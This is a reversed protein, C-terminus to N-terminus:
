QKGLFTDEFSRDTIIKGAHKKAKDTLFVAGIKEARLILKLQKVSLDELHDELTAGQPIYKLIEDKLMTKYLEFAMMICVIIMTAPWLTFCLVFGVSEEDKVIVSREAKAAAVIFISMLFLAIAIYILIYIM